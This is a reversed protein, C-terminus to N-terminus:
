QAVATLIGLVAMVILLEIITFGKEGRAFHKVLRKIKQMAGLREEGM